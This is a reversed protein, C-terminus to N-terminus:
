IIAEDDLVRKALTLVGVWKAGHEKLLHSCANLTAGTTMVDDILLIRKGKITHEQGLRVHFADAVNRQRATYNLHTQPPTAKTRQLTHPLLTLAPRKDAIIAALLMAQNYRRTRLRSPHLPVPILCDAKELLHSGHIHLLVSLRPALHTADQFKLRKIVTSSITDYRWLAYAADFMPPNAICNDCHTHGDIAYEFPEGCQLCLPDSLMHLQTHCQACFTGSAAVPANCGICSPPFLLNGSANLMAKAIDYAHSLSM